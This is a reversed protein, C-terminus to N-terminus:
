GTHVTNFCQHKLVFAEICFTNFCRSIEICFANLDTLASPNENKANRQPQSFHLKGELGCQKWSRCGEARMYSAAKGSSPM